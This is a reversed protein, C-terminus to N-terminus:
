AKGGEFDWKFERAIRYAQERIFIYHKEAGTWEAYEPINLCTENVDKILGNFFEDDYDQLYGDNKRKISFVNLDNTIVSIRFVKENLLYQIDKASPLTDNTHSHMMHVSNNPANIMAEEAEPPVRVKNSYNEFTDFREGNVIIVGHELGDKKSAEYLENLIKREEDTITLKSYDEFNDKYKEPCKGPIKSSQM